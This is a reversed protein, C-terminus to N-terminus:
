WAGTTGECGEEIVIDYGEVELVEITKELQGKKVMLYDTDYTSLAFISIGARALPATLSALVGTLSFDLPGEVMLAKWGSERTVGEPVQADPCVVSLGEATRTVSFFPSRTGWDPIPAHRDLRCVAYTHPLLTLRRRKAEM